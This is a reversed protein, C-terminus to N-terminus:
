VAVDSPQNFTDSGDGAVGAKGLTLLVKGAPSFKVVIHGKGEIREGSPPLGDTVWINGDKDVHFGHPFIFMGAGFSTLPKGSPNIELVPALNSGACSNRGCREALWINGARDVGVASTAGWTRGEPLRAWNAVPEYPNPLSNMPQLVAQSIARGGSPAIVAVILLFRMFRRRCSVSM